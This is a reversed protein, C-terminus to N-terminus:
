SKEVCRYQFRLIVGNKFVQKDEAKRKDAEATCLARSAFTASSQWASFVAERVHTNDAPWAVSQVLLIWGILAHRRM